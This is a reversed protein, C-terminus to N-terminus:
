FAYRKVATLVETVTIEKMCRFDIPCTRLFCPSCPVHKHIVQGYKRYPGTKVDSTSGFLAIVPVNMADALHMPGSDNTLLLNCKQLLSALERGTTKGALNIVCPPFGKVIQQVVKASQENGFYLITCPQIRLLQETVERFRETPWCKASGYTAVPHVGIIPSQQAQLFDKAWNKEQNTVFITPVSPSRPIGLPELLRKYTMVLHEPEKPISVASTLLLSRIGRRFGIRTSINGHFLMWATSLSNTLLIGLDFHSKRIKTATEKAGTLPWIDDVYPHHELLAHIPHKCLATLRAAPFATKVDQLIPTAMICDGMWNPMRVLINCYAMFQKQHLTSFKYWVQFIFDNKHLSFIPSICEKSQDHFVLHTSQSL